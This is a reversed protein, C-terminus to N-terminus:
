VQLRNSGYIVLDNVYLIVQVSNKPWRIQRLLGKLLIYYLTPNSKRGSGSWNNALVAPTRGNQQRHNDQGGTSGYRSRPSFAYLFGGGDAHSYGQGQASLRLSSQFCRVSRTAFRAVHGTTEQCRSDPDQVNNRHLTQETPILHVSESYNGLRETLLGSLM